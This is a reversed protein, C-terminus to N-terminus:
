VAQWMQQTVGAQEGIEKASSAPSLPENWLRELDALNVGARSWDFEINREKIM